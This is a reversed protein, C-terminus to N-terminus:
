FHKFYADLEAVEEEYRGEIEMKRVLRPPLKVNEVAKRESTQLNKVLTCNITSDYTKYDCQPPSLHGGMRRALSDKDTVPGTHNIVADLIGSVM